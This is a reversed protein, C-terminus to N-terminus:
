DLIEHLESQFGNQLCTYILFLGNVFILVKKNCQVLDLEM